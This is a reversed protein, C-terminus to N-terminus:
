EEEEQVYDEVEWTNDKFIDTSVPVLKAQVFVDEAGITVSVDAYNRFKRGLPLHSFNYRPSVNGQPPPFFKCVHNTVPSATLQDIQLGTEDDRVVSTVGCHIDGGIM